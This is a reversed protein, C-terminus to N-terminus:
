GRKSADVAPATGAKNAVPGTWGGPAVGDLM